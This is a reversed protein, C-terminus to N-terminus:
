NSDKNFMDSRDILRLRILPLRAKWEIGKITRRSQSNRFKYAVEYRFAAEPKEILPVDSMRIVLRTGKGPPIYGATKIPAPLDKGNVTARLTADFELLQSNTNTLDVYCEAEAASTRQNITLIFVPQGDLILSGLEPRPAIANIIKTWPDFILTLILALLAFVGPVLWVIMNNLEAPLLKARQALAKAIEDLGFYHAIVRSIFYVAVALAISSFVRTM